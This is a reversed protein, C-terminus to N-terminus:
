ATEGDGRADIVGDVLNNARLREDLGGPLVLSRLWAANAAAATRTRTLAAEATVVEFRFSQGAPMQALRDVDASIV